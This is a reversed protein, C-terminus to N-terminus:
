TRYQIHNGIFTPDNKWSRPESNTLAKYREAYKEPYRLQAITEVNRNPIVRAFIQQRCEPCHNAAQIAPLCIGCLVHGNGCIISANVLLDLCVTCEFGADVSPLPPYVAHPNARLQEKFRVHALKVKEMAQYFAATTLVSAILSDHNRAMLGKVSSGSHPPISIEKRVLQVLAQLPVGIRKGTLEPKQNLLVFSLFGSAKMRQERKRDDFYSLIFHYPVQSRKLGIEKEVLSYNADKVSIDAKQPDYARDRKGPLVWGGEDAWLLVIHLVDRKEHTLPDEVEDFYGVMIDETLIPGSSNIPNGDAAPIRQLVGGPGMKSPQPIQREYYGRWFQSEEGRQDSSIEQALMDDIEKSAFFEVPESNYQFLLSADRDPRFEREKPPVPMSYPLGLGARALEEMISKRGKGAIGGHWDASPWGYKKAIFSGATEAWNSRESAAVEDRPTTVGESIAGLSWGHGQFWVEGVEVCRDVWTTGNATQFIQPNNLKEIHEPMIGNELSILVRIAGDASGASIGEKELLEVKMNRLRNAAGSITHDLGHPQEDINSPVGYGKATVEIRQNFMALLWKEVSEKSAQMKLANKSTVLVEIRRGSLGGAALIAGKLDKVSAVSLSQLVPVAPAPVLQGMYSSSANAQM